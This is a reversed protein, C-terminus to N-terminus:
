CISTITFSKIEEEEEGTEGLQAAPWSKPSCAKSPACRPAFSCTHSSRRPAARRYAPSPWYIFDFRAHWFLACSSFSHPKTQGSNFAVPRQVVASSEFTDMQPEGLATQRGQPQRDAAGPRCHAKWCWSIRVMFIKNPKRYVFFQHYSGALKIQAVPNDAETFASKTQSSGEYPDQLNM